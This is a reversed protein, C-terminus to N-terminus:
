QALSVAVAKAICCPSWEQEPPHTAKLGKKWWEESKISKLFPVTINQKLQLCVIKFPCSGGYKYFSSLSPCAEAEM